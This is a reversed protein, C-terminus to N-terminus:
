KEQGPRNIDLLDINLKMWQLTAALNVTHCIGDNLTLLGRTEDIVQNVEKQREESFRELLRKLNLQGQTLYAFRLPFQRLQYLKVLDPELGAKQWTQLAMLIMSDLKHKDIVPKDVTEIFDKSEGNILLRGLQEDGLYITQLFFELMNDKTLPEKDVYYGNRALMPSELLTVLDHLAFSECGVGSAQRGPLFFFRSDTFDHYKIALTIALGVFHSLPSYLQEKKYRKFASLSDVFFFRYHGKSNRRISFVNVHGTTDQFIYNKPEETAMLPLQTIFLAVLQRLCQQIGLYTHMLRLINSNAADLLRDVLEYNPLEEPLDLQPLVAKAFIRILNAPLKKFGPHKILVHTMEGEELKEPFYLKLLSLVGQWRYEASELYGKEALIDPNERYLAKLEAYFDDINNKQDMTKLSKEAAKLIEKLKELHRAHSENNGSASASAAGSDSSGSSDSSSQGKTMQKKSQRKQQPPPSKGDTKSQEKNENGYRNLEFPYGTFVAGKDPQLGGGESVPLSIISSKKGKQLLLLPVIGSKPLRVPDPLFSSFIADADNGSVLSSAFPIVAQSDVSFLIIALIFVCSMNKM